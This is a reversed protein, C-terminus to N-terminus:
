PVSKHTVKTPLKSLNVKSPMVLQQLVSRYPMPMWRWVNLQTFLKWVGLWGRLEQDDYFYEEKISFFNNEILTPFFRRNHFLLYKCHEVMAEAVETPVPRDHVAYSLCLVSLVALITNTVDAITRQIALENASLTCETQSQIYSCIQHLAHSSECIGLQTLLTSVCDYTDEVLLHSDPKLPAPPIETCSDFFFERHDNQAAIFAIRVFSLVAAESNCPQNNSCCVPLSFAKRLLSKRSIVLLDELNESSTSRKALIYRGELCQIKRLKELVPNHALYSHHHRDGGYFRFLYRTNRADRELENHLKVLKKRGINLLIFVSEVSRPRRFLMLNHEDQPISEASFHVTQIAAALEWLASKYSAADQGYHNKLEEMEPVFYALCCLEVFDFVLEPLLVCHYVSWYHGVQQKSLHPALVLRAPPKGGHRRVESILEEEVLVGWRNTALLCVREKCKEWIFSLMVPHVFSHFFRNRVEGLWEEIEACCIPKRKKSSYHRYFESLQVTFVGRNCLDCGVTMSDNDLCSSNDVRQRITDGYLWLLPKLEYSLWRGNFYQQSLQELQHMSSFLILPAILALHRIDTESLKPHQSFWRLLSKEPTQTQPLHSRHHKSSFGGGSLGCLVEISKIIKNEHHSDNLRKLISMCQLRESIAFKTFSGLSSALITAMGISYPMGFSSLGLECVQLVHLPSAGQDLMAKLLTEFSQTAGSWQFYPLLEHSKVWCRLAAKWPFRLAVHKLVHLVLEGDMGDVDDQLPAEAISKSSDRHFDIFHKHRRELTDILLLFAERVCNLNIFSVIVDRRQRIGNCAETMLQRCEKEYRRQKMTCEKIILLIDLVSLANVSTGPPELIYPSAHRLTELVHIDKSALLNVAVRSLVTHFPALDKSCLCEKTINLSKLVFLWESRRLYVDETVVSLLFLPPVISNALCQSLFFFALRSSTKEIHTLVLTQASSPSGGQKHRLQKLKHLLLSVCDVDHPLVALMLTFSVVSFLSQLMDISEYKNRMPAMDVIIDAAARELVTALARIIFSAGSLLNRDSSTPHLMLVDPVGPNSASENQFSYSFFKEEWQKKAHVVDELYVYAEKYFNHNVLGMFGLLFYRINFCTSELIAAASSLATRLTDVARLTTGDQKCLCSVQDYFQLAPWLTPQLVERFRELLPQLGRLVSLMAEWMDNNLLQVIGLETTRACLFKKAHKEYKEFAISSMHEYTKSIGLFVRMTKQVDNSRACDRLISSALEAQCIFVHLNDKQASEASGGRTPEARHEQLLSLAEQYAGLKMLKPIVLVRYAETNGDWVRKMEAYASAYRCDSTSQLESEVLATIAATMKCNLELYRYYAFLVTWWASTEESNQATNSNIGGSNSQRALLCLLEIIKRPPTHVKDHKTLLLLTEVAVLCHNIHGMWEKDMEAVERRPVASRAFSLLACQVLNREEENWTHSEHFALSITCDALRRQDNLICEELSSCCSSAACAWQQMWQVSLKIWFLLAKVNRDGVSALSLLWVKGATQSWVDMVLSSIVRQAEVGNWKAKKGWWSVPWHEWVRCSLSPFVLSIIVATTIIPPIQTNCASPDAPISLYLLDLANIIEPENPSTSNVLFYSAVDMIVSVSEQITFAHDRSWQTICNVLDRGFTLRKGVQINDSVLYSFASGSNFFILECLTSTMKKVLETAVVSSPYSQLWRIGRVWRVSDKGRSSVSGRKAFYTFFAAGFSAVVVDPPSEIREVITVPESPSRLFSESKIYTQAILLAFDVDGVVGAAQMLFRLEQQGPSRDHVVDCVGRASCHWSEVVRSLSPDVKKIGNFLDIVENPLGSHILHRWVEVRLAPAPLVERRLTEKMIHMLPCTAPPVGSSPLPMGKRNMELVMNTCTHLFLSMSVRSTCIRDILSLAADIGGGKLASALVVEYTQTLPLYGLELAGIFLTVVQEWKHELAAKRIVEDIERVSPMATFRPLLISSSACTSPKADTDTWRGMKRSPIKVNLGTEHFEAKRCSVNGKTAQLRVSGRTWSPIVSCGVGAASTVGPRCQARIQKKLISFATSEGLKSM